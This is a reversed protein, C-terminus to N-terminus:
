IEVIKYKRDKISKGFKDVKDKNGADKQKDKTKKAEVEIEANALTDFIDEKDIGDPLVAVWVERKVWSPESADTSIFQKYIKFAM